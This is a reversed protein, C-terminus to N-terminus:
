QIPRTATRGAEGSSPMPSRDARCGRQAPRPVCSSLTEPQVRQAPSGVSRLAQMSQVVVACDISVAWQLGDSLSCESGAPSKGVHEYDAASEREVDFLVRCGTPDSNRRSRRLTTSITMVAPSLM